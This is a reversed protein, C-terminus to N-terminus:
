LKRVSDFKAQTSVKIWFNQRANCTSSMFRAEEFWTIIEFFDSQKDITEM